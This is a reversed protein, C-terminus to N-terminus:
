PKTRKGRSESLGRGISDLAFTDPAIGLTSLMEFIPKFDSEKTEIFRSAGLASLVTKGQPTNEMELLASRLREILKEDTGKKVGFTNAPVETSRALVVLKEAILPNEAALREFILDSACGLDADGTLVSLVSADHSGTYIVKSFYEEFDTVGKKHLLYKPFIYGATTSKHVLAIRKKKWTRFDDTIGKNKVTFILGRYTSTGDIKMPRTVPEIGIRSNVAVYALSGFFAADVKDKSLENYIAGYSDLLKTKVTMNLSKSLYDALPQYRQKQKFVNQAPLIAIVFTEKTSHNENIAPKESKKESCASFSFLTILIACLFIARTRNDRM